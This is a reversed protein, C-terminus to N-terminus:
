IAYELALNSSSGIKNLAAVPIQHNAFGGPMRQNRRTENHLKEKIQNENVLSRDSLLPVWLFLDILFFFFYSRISFLVLELPQLPVCRRASIVWEKKKFPGNRM